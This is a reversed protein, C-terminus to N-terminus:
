THSSTSGTVSLLTPSFSPNWGRPLHHLGPTRALVGDLLWSTGSTDNTGQPGRPAAPRAPGHAQAGPDGRAHGEHTGVQASSKKVWSKSVALMM